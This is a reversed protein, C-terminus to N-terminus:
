ALESTEFFRQLRSTVSDYGYVMIRNIEIAELRQLPSKSLWYSMEDEDELSGISLYRKDLCPLEINKPKDKKLKGSM